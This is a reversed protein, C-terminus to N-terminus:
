LKVVPWFFISNSVIRSKDGTISEFLASSLTRPPRGLWCGSICFRGAGKRSGSVCLRCLQHNHSTMTVMRHWKENGLGSPAPSETRAGFGNGLDLNNGIIEGIFEGVSVAMIAQIGLGVVINCLKPRPVRVARVPAALQMENGSPLGRLPDIHPLPKGIENAEAYRCITM